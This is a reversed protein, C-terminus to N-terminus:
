SRTRLAIAREHGLHEFAYNQSAGKETLTKAEERNESDKVRQRASGCATTGAGNPSKM